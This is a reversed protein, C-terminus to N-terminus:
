ADRAQAADCAECIGTIEIVKRLPRFHAAKAQESMAAEIISADVPEVAGCDECMLLLVGASHHAPALCYAQKSEVRQVLGCEILVDLVRYVSNPAIRKGMQQSLEAAIEYAGRPQKSVAIQRLIAERFPTFAVGRGKCQQHALDCIQEWTESCASTGDSPTAAQEM